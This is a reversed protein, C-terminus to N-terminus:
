LKAEAASEEAAAAAAPAAEPAAAKNSSVPATEAAGTAIPADITNPAADKNGVRALIWDGCERYYLERDEKPEAHLKHLWKDYTRFTKDPVAAASTEFWRKSANYDTCPDADGHGLWVSQVSASPKVRGQTIDNVRDLLGALGELTGTDHCLTDKELQAIVEPDRSLYSRPLEHKLQFHPLLRGALRGAVIKFTTPAESPPFAFFPASLLWGRVNKVITTDLESGVPAAMLTAVQNGGM